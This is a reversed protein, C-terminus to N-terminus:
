VVKIRENRLLSSRRPSRLKQMNQKYENPSIEMVAQIEEDDLGITSLLLIEKQQNSLTKMFSKIKAVNNEQKEIREDPIVDKLELESDETAPANLSQPCFNARTKDTGYNNRIYDEMRKKLVNTAYTYTNSKSSNHKTMEKELIIYAINEFDGYELGLTEYRCRYINWVPQIVIKRFKHWETKIENM